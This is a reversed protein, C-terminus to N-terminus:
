LTAHRNEREGGQNEGAREGLRLVIRVTFDARDARERCARAGVDEHAEEAIPERLYRPPRHQDLVPGPRLPRECGLEGGLGLQGSAGVACMSRVDPM